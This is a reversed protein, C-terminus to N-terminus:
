SRVSEKDSGEEIAIFYFSSKKGNRLRFPLVIDDQYKGDNVLCSWSYSRRDGGGLVTLPLVSRAKVM